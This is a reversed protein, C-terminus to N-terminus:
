PRVSAEQQFGRSVSRPKMRMKRQEDARLVQRVAARHGSRGPRALWLLYFGILPIAIDTYLVIGANGPAFNHAATMERIHGWAAGLTFIGPAVIAALRLDYSRFAAIFGLVAFGLSATGVEFQFPSDAWGIFAAAMPGFFCHMVFNYLFCLGINFFVYWALYTEIVSSRSLRPRARAVVVAAVILGLVLFTLSYNSLVFRIISAIADKM